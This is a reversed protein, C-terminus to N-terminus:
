KQWFLCFLNSIKCYMLENVYLIIIYGSSLVVILAFIEYQIAINVLM